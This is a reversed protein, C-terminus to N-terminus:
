LLESGSMGEREYRCITCDDTHVREAEAAILDNIMATVSQGRIGAVHKTVRILEPRVTISTIKSKM